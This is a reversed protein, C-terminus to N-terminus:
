RAGGQTTVGFFARGNCHSGTIAKAVASLSRYVKNDYLFGAALVQVQLQRGQYSRSLVTGAMPQTTAACPAPIGAQPDFQRPPRIRIQSEDVLEVLRRQARESLGGERVEQLRWAIRKFLHDKHKSTPEEGFLERYKERLQGLSMGQLTKLQAAITPM